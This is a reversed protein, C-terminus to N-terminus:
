QVGTTRLPLPFYDPGMPHQPTVPQPGDAFSILFYQVPIADRYLRLGPVGDELPGGSAATVRLERGDLTQRMACYICVADAPLHKLFNGFRPRFPRGEEDARAETRDRTDRALRRNRIPYGRRLQRRARSTPRWVGHEDPAWGEPMLIHRRAASPRRPKPDRASLDATSFVWALGNGCARCLIRCPNKDSLRAIMAM